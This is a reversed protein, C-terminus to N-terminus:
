ESNPIIVSIFNRTRSSVPRASWSDSNDLSRVLALLSEAAEDEIGSEYRVELGRPYNIKEFFSHDKPYIELPGMFGSAKIRNSIKHAFLEASSDKIPFYIGIKYGNLPSITEVYRKAENAKEVVEETVGPTTAVLTLLDQALKADLLKVLRIANMQSSPNGSNFDKYFIEIFKVQIARKAENNQNEVSSHALQLQAESIQTAAQSGFWALLGLIAPLILKELITLLREYKYLKSPTKQTMDKLDSRLKTIESALLDIKEEM